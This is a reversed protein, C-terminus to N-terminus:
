CFNSYIITRKQWKYYYTTLLMQNSKTEPPNCPGKVRVIMSGKFNEWSMTMVLMQRIRLNM